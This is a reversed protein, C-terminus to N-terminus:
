HNTYAPVFWTQGAINKIQFWMDPATTGVTVSTPAANTPIAIGNTSTTVGGVSLNTQIIGNGLVQLRETANAAAGINVFGDPGIRVAEVINGGTTPATYLRLDTPVVNSSVVGNVTARIEAALTVTNGVTSDTLSPAQFSIRGLGDGNVVATRKSADTSRTHFFTLLPSGTDDTARALVFGYNGAGSVVYSVGSLNANLNTIPYGTTNTFRAGFQGVVDLDITPNYVQIGIMGRTINVQSSLGSNTNHWGYADMYTWNTKANDGYNTGNILNQYFSTGNTARVSVPFQAMAPLGVLLFM